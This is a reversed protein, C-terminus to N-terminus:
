MKGSSAHSPSIEFAVCVRQQDVELPLTEHHFYSPMLVLLGPEPKIWRETWGNDKGYGRRRPAGIRLWGARTKTESVIPPVDVYYVGNAWSEPHIHSRHHTDRGSIVSWGLIDFSSPRNSLFPHSSDAPLAACYDEVAQRFQAFMRQLVPTGHGERLGQRRWGLRIARDTPEEFYVKDQILELSLSILDPADAANPHKVRLLSDHDLLRRVEETLGLKTATVAFFDILPPPAFGAAMLIKIKAYVHPSTDLKTESQFLTPLYELASDLSAAQHALRAAGAADGGNLLRGARALFFASASLAEPGLAITNARAASLAEETFLQQKRM